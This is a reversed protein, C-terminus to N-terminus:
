HINILKQVNEQSFEFSEPIKKDTIVQRRLMNVAAFIWCRGSSKQNACSTKPTIEKTLVNPVQNVHRPTSVRSLLNNHLSYNKDTQINDFINLHKIYAIGNALQESKIVTFGRLVDSFVIKLDIESSM